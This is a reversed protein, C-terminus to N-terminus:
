QRESTTNKFNEALSFIKERKRSDMKELIKSMMSLRPKKSFFDQHNRVFSWYLGDWIDCWDGKPYHSMKLIYNSGSFYPKTAFIGGDSFQGMGYVNPGMVWEYSDLYMEMFWRHVEHPHLETLLMANSVIMLREIHHNYGLRLAKRIADDLPPLGTSGEYWCAKMKRQHDFFNASSQVESFEQHIGCIFERWGVIQRVFGELSELPVKHKMAFTTARDIVEKPNLLGLNILPSLGSHFVFDFRPDIADEYPGFSHFRSKLFHNFFELSDKRNTPLWLELSKGKSIEGPHNSFHKKILKEVADQHHSKTQIGLESVEINKPLKKRNETDFSWRGGVPNGERDILINKNKRVTEYFYKMFPKKYKKLYAKFEIQSVMFQPSPLFSLEIQHLLCFQILQNRFGLDPIEPTNLHAIVLENLLKLIREFFLISKSQELEYYHVEIGQKILEDRFERMAVFQHLIRLQHYRYHSAVGFDEIMVVPGDHYFDAFLQNGLILTLVKQQKM